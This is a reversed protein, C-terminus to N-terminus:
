EGAVKNYELKAEIHKEIPINNYKCFYILCKIIEIFYEEVYNDDAIKYDLTTIMNTLYFLSAGINKYSLYPKLDHIDCEDFMIEDIEIGLYGCLSFLRIFTDAFYGEFSGKIERGYHNMFTDGTLDFINDFRGDVFKALRGEKHARRADMIAEIVDCLMDSINLTAKGTGNCVECDKSLEIGETPDIEGSLFNGFGECGPCDYNVNEGAEKIYKEINM